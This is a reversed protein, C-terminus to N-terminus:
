RGLGRTRGTRVSTWYDDWHWQQGDRATLLLSAERNEGLGTPTWNHSGQVIWRNDIIVVKDHLEIVTENYEVSIDHDQLWQKALRNAKTRKPDKDPQPRSLIVRVTLGRKRAKALDQLLQMVWDDHRAYSRGALLANSEIMYMAVLIRREAQKFLDSVRRRYTEGFLPTVTYDTTADVGITSTPATDGATRTPETDSPTTTTEPLNVALVTGGAIVLLCGVVYRWDIRDTWQVNENNPDPPPPEETPHPDVPDYTIEKLDEPMNLSTDPANTIASELAPIDGARKWETSGEPCVLTDPELNFKQELERKTYPRQSVSGDDYVWWKM